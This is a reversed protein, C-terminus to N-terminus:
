GVARVVDDVAEIAQRLDAPCSGSLTLAEIARMRIDGIERAADRPCLEIVRLCAQLALEEAGCLRAIVSATM